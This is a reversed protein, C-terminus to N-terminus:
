EPIGSMRGVGRTKDRMCVVWGEMWGGRYRHSVVCMCWNHSVRGSKVGLELAETDDEPTQPIEVIVVVVHTRFGHLSNKKSM